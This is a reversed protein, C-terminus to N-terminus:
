QSRSRCPFGEHLERMEYFGVVVIGSLFIDAHQESQSINNIRAGLLGGVVVKYLWHNSGVTWRIGGQVVLSQEWCDM